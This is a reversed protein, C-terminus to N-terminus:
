WRAGSAKSRPSSISGICARWWSQRLEALVRDLAQWDHAADASEAPIAVEDVFQRVRERLAELAATPQLHRFM